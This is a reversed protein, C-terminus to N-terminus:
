LIRIFEGGTIAFSIEEEEEARGGGGERRRGGEEEEKDEEEEEEEIGTVTHSHQRKHFRYTRVTPSKM